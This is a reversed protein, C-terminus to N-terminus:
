KGGNEAPCTPVCFSWVGVDLSWLFELLWDGFNKFNSIQDKEPAQLKTSPHKM